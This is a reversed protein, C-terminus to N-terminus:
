LALSTASSHKSYWTDIVVLPGRQEHYGESDGGRTRDFLAAREQPEKLCLNEALHNYKVDHYKFYNQTM